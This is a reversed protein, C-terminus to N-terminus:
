HNNKRTINCKMCDKFLGKIFKGSQIMKMHKEHIPKKVSYIKRGGSYKTITKYGQKGNIVVKRITKRNKSMKTEINKYNKMIYM